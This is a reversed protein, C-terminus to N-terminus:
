LSGEFDVSKIEEARDQDIIKDLSNQREMLNLSRTFLYFYSYYWVNHKEM